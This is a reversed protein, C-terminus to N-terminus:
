GEITEFRMAANCGGFGSILKIFRKGRATQNEAQINIKRSVGLSSFGKTGLITYDDLSAMTILTELLGAAGLTHGFYGKLSNIPVEAFGARALAVAEMEDNYMTATGHVNVMTSSSASLGQTVRDLARWSGEATKSPHSIHFADNYVAGTRAIWDSTNLEHDPKLQYVACASAEGLNLGIREEDFPRCPEDSVSRFSQFGSVIFPSLMDAAIVVVTKAKYAHLVRMAEMQAHLGSICANSVVLPPRNNGFWKAIRSAAASLSLFGSDYNAGKDSLLHVNGKTSALIFLTEKNKVDVEVQKLANAAVVIAMQEFYTYGESVGAEQCLAAFMDKDLFSAAFPEALGWKNEYKRLSTRGEKVAKYNVGTGLGLPSLVSDAIKVVMETEM